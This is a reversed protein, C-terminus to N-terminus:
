GARHRSGPKARHSRSRRFRLWRAPASRALPPALSSWSTAQRARWTRLVVWARRAARLRRAPWVESRESGVSRISHRKQSRLRSAGSRAAPRAPAASAATLFWCMPDSLKAQRARDLRPSVGLFILRDAARKVFHASGLLDVIWPDGLYRMSVSAAGRRYCEFVLQCLLAAVGERSGFLDRIHAREGLQDVLAYADLRSGQRAAAWWRGPAQPYRWQLLRHSRVAVVTYERRCRAWLADVGDPVDPGLEVNARRRAVAVRALDRGLQALDLAAATAQRQWRPREALERVLRRSWAPLRAVDGQEARDLYSHHRLVRAYRTMAGLPVYGVRRFVGQAHHNPFGYALDFEALTWTRVERVLRLAPAVTRHDRDVALDALLAARVIEDGIAIERVGIGATGVFRAVAKTEAVATSSPQAELALLFVAEPHIPAQEYLWQFKSAASQELSLNRQWLQELETRVEGPARRRVVYSDM